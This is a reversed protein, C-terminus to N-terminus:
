PDLPFLQIKRFHIEDGEATLCIKGSVVDCGTAKNVVEGNVVLTATDGEVRIEYDNWQGAPREVAATKKLNTLQGFQPHDLSKKREAPGDLKYGDLGWFDGADGANIQAELCKPWIKDAGTTRVLVGGRGPKKNAPWRWQLKLVFNTFDGALYRYGKPEGKCILVGDAVKWTEAATEPAESFTKWAFAPSTGAAPNLLDVASGAPEAAGVAACTTAVLVLLVIRLSRNM